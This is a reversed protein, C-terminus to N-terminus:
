SSISMPSRISRSSTTIEMVCKPYILRRGTVSYLACCRPPFPTVACRGLSSSKTSVMSVVQVCSSRSNKVFLPLTYQMFAYSTGSAARAARPLAITLRSERPSPSVTDAIIGTLSSARPLPLRIIAVRIPSILFVGMVCNSLMRRPPLIAMESLSPSSSILTCSVPPRSSISMADLAPLHMRKESSSTRGMPLSVMPTREMFSSSPSTITSM